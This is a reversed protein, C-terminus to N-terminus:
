VEREVLTVEDFVVEVLFDDVLVVEEELLVRVCLDVGTFAGTFASEVGVVMSLSVVDFDVDIDLVFFGVCVCLGTQFPCCRCRSTTSGTGSSSSVHSDYATARQPKIALIGIFGLKPPSFLSPQPPLTM